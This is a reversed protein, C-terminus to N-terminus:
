PNLCHGDDAFRYRKGNITLVGTVMAGTSPDMYYWLDGVQVWGVAMEGSAKLYYWKGGSSLWGTKMAGSPQLYYWLGCDKQWGTLMVGGDNFLYWAGGIKQWGTAMAGGPTLYYWSNGWKLWEGSYMSGSNRFCYWVGGIEKWGTQMVGEEDFYYWAGDKLWGVALSGDELYYYWADGEQSWGPEIGTKKFVASVTVDSAPMEFEGNNVEVANGAADKVTISKLEYGDAPTVTITIIDGVNATNTNTKVTGNQAGAVTIKYDIKKCYVNVVVDEAPMTFEPVKYEVGNVTIYDFEYGEVPNVTVTVTKGERVSTASLEPTCNKANGLEAKYIEASGTYEYDSTALTLVDMGFYDIFYDDYIYKDENNIWYADGSQSTAGKLFYNYDNPKGNGRDMVTIDLHYNKGDDMHVLNWLHGGASGTSFVVEGYIDLAYISDDDYDTNDSLYHFAKAYGECVVDTTVDGDFVWIIQWPNGYPTSDDKVADFNYDTLDCITEAYALIKSYDDKAANAAIIRKVNERAATVAQGFKTNVTYRDGDRYEKAVVFGFEIDYVHIYKTNGVEEIDYLFSTSIYQTKDWWYMEYPCAYMLADCVLNIDFGAESWARIVANYVSNDTIRYSLGIERSNYTFSLVEEPITFVTSKEIGAAVAQVQPMLCRYTILNDGSLGSEFDFTGYYAQNDPNLNRSIYEEALDDNDFDIDVKTEFYVRGSTKGDTEDADVTEDASEETIEATGKGWAFSEDAEAALLQGGCSFLIAATIGMSALRLVIRKKM